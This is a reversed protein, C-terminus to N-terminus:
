LQRGRVVDDQATHAPHTRQLLGGPLQVRREQAAGAHGPGGPHGPLNACEDGRAAGALLPPLHRARPLPGRLQLWQFPFVYFEHYITSSCAFHTIKIVLGISIAKM